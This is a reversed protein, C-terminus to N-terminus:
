KEITYDINIEGDTKSQFIVTSIEGSWSIGPQISEERTFIIKGQTHEVELNSNPINGLEILDKGLTFEYLDVVEVEEPNYEIVFKIGTFDQINSAVLSLNFKEDKHGNIIYSPNLTGQEISTSWATTGATNKARIRYTHVIGPELNDHLYVNNDGNDIIGGDVEVDYGTANEVKDWRFEISNNTATTTIGTPADPPNPLTSLALVACWDSKNNEDMFKIKYIHYSNPKLDSHKYMTMTENQVVKGDVEIYYKADKAVADWSITISDNTVIAIVNTLSQVSEPLTVIYGEDSWESVGSINKARIRYTHKTNPQNTKHIYMTDSVNVIESGDIEIDYSEGYPVKYWTVTIENNDSTTMINTPVTPKEPYTTIDLAESWDSKGGRNVARIRYTHGTAPELGEHIYITNTGNDIIMGDVEMEYGTAREMEDWSVTITTKTEQGIINIPTDPPVPLTSYRIENSWDSIGGRNKARVRYKHETDPTLDKHTFNTSNVEGIMSGDAEIEYIEARAAEDWTLTIETQISDTTINLLSDPPYPLTTKTFLSSWNGVGGTNISRMRYTHRTDPTLNDHIYNTSMKNDIVVGDIEIDYKLVDVIDTWNVTISHKQIDFQIDSPPTALTRKTIEESYETEIGETNKAKVKFTYITNENLGDVTINKNAIQIWQPETTLEGYENLYNTGSAIQYLTESPNNDIVYLDLSKEKINKIELSSKEAKTYTSLEQSTIYNQKDRVEVKVSYLKNPQLSDNKYPNSVTWTSMEDGITYRYPQSDLGSEGDFADVTVIVSDHTSETSVNRFVPPTNDIIINITEITTSEWDSVKFKLSHYGETFESFDLANFSINQSTATNDIVKTDRPSTESDVYLECSLQDGNSDSVSIIPTLTTSSKSFTQNEVPEIVDINPSSNVKYKITVTYAYYYRRPKYVRGSYEGSYSDIWETVTKKIEGKYVAEYDTRLKYTTDTSTVWTENDKDYSVRPISGNYGDESISYSSGLKLNSPVYYTRLWEDDMNYIRYRTKSLTKRFTRSEEKEVEYSNDIFNELPIYGSYGGSDYYYKEAPLSSGTDKTVSVTKYPKYSDVSSGGSVSITVKDGSVSYNVTGTDVTVDEVSVLNPITITKSRTRSTSKSFNVTDISTDAYVKKRIKFLNNSNISVSIDMMVLFIILISILKRFSKYKSM